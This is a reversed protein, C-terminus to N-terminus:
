YWVFMNTKYRMSNSKKEKKAWPFQPCHTHILPYLGRLYKSLQRLPRMIQNMVEIYMTSNLLTHVLIHLTCISCIYESSELLRSTTFLFTTPVEKENAYTIHTTSNELPPVFSSLNKGLFWCVWLFNNFKSFQVLLSTDFILCWKQLM